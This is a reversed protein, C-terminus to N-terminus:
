SQRDDRDLKAELRQWDEMLMRSMESLEGEQSMTQSQKYQRRSRMNSM